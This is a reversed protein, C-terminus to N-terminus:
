LVSGLCLIVPPKGYISSDNVYEHTHTFYLLARRIIHTARARRYPSQLLAAAAHFTRRCTPKYQGNYPNFAKRHEPSPSPTLTFSCSPFFINLLYFGGGVVRDGVGGRVRIVVDTVSLYIIYHGPIWISWDPLFGIARFNYCWTKPM